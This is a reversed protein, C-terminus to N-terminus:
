FSYGFYDIDEQFYKAVLNATDTNYYQRYDSHVSPNKHPLHSHIGIRECITEFDKALNEFRGIYDVIQNDDSDTVFNTQSMRDHEIHWELYEPFGKLRTIIRHQPHLRHSLIYHYQSVQWDWPNRVFAFKFYNNFVEDGFAERIETATRHEGVPGRMGLVYLLRALTYKRYMFDAYPALAGKVSTGAAKNIHIFIFKKRHSIIM